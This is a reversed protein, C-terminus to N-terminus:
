EELCFSHIMMLEGSVCFDGARVTNSASALRSEVSYLYNANMAGVSLLQENSLKEKEQILYIATTKRIYKGCYLLFSSRM